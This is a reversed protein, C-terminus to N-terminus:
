SFSGVFMAAFAYFSNLFDIKCCAQRFSIEGWLFEPYSHLFPVVNTPHKPPVIQFYYSKNRMRWLTVVKGSFTPSFLSKGCCRPPPAPLVPV